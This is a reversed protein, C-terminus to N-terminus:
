DLRIMEVDNKPAKDYYSPRKTLTFAKRNKM